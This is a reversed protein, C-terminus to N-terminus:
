LTRKLYGALGARIVLGLQAILVHLELRLYDKQPLYVWQTDGM